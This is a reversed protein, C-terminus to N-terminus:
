NDFSVEGSTWGEGGRCWFWLFFVSSFATFSANRRMEEIPDAETKQTFIPCGFCHMTGHSIRYKKDESLTCDSTHFHTCQGYTM